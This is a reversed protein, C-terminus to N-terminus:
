FNIRYHELRNHTHCVENLFVDTKQISIAVSRLDIPFNDTHGSEFNDRLKYKLEITKTKRGNKDYLVVYVDSDTGKGTQVGTKVLLQIRQGATSSTSNTAGM